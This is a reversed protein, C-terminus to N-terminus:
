QVLRKRRLVQEKKTVGVRREGAGPNKNLLEKLYNRHKEKDDLDFPLIQWLFDFRENV